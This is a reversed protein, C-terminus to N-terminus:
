GSSAARQRVHGRLSFENGGAPDRLRDMEHAILLHHEIGIQRRERAHGSSIQILRDGAIAISERGIEAEAQAAILGRTQYEL